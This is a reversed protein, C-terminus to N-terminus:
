PTETIILNTRDFKLIDNEYSLSYVELSALKAKYDLDYLVGHILQKFGDGFDGPFDAVFSGVSLEEINSSTLDQLKTASPFLYFKLTEDLSVGNDFETNEIQLPMNDVYKIPYKYEVWTSQDDYSCVDIHLDDCFINRNVQGQTDFYEVSRNFLGANGLYQSNELFGKNSDIEGSFTIKTYGDIATPAFYDYSSTFLFTDKDDNLKSLSLEFDYISNSNLLTIKEVKNEIEYTHSYDSRKEETATSDASSFAKMLDLDKSWQLTFSAGDSDTTKIRYQYEDTDSFETYRIEGFKYPADQYNKAFENGKSENIEILKSIVAQDLNFSIKNAAITCENAIEVSKCEEQIDAIM